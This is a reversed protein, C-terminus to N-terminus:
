LFTFFVFFANHSPKLFLFFNEEEKEKRTRAKRKRKKTTAKRQRKENKNKQTGYRNILYELCAYHGANVAAHLPTWGDVHPGDNVVLKFQKKQCRCLFFRNLFRVNREVEEKKRKGSKAEKRKENEKENKVM